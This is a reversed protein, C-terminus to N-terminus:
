DNAPWTLALSSVVPKIADLGDATTSFTQDGVLAMPIEIDATPDLRVSLGCGGEMNELAGSEFSTIYGGYDWEFGTMTMEAGNAQRVEDLSMGVTLGDVTWATAEFDPQVTALDTLEDDFFYVNLRKDPDNPYLAVGKLEEGEAGPLDALEAEDKFRELLIKATDGKAVPSTCTLVNETPMDEAVAAAPLSGACLAIMLIRQFAHSM